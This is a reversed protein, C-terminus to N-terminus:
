QPPENSHAGFQMSVRGVKWLSESCHWPSVWVCTICNLAPFHLPHLAPSSPALRLKDGSFEKAKNEEHCLDCSSTM